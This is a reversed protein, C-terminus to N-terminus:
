PGRVGVLLWRDDTRLWHERESGVVQAGRLWHVTVQGSRDRVRVDGVFWPLSAREQVWAESPSPAGPLVGVRALADDVRGHFVDRHYATVAEHLTAEPTSAAAASVGYALGGALLLAVVPFLTAQPFHQPTV